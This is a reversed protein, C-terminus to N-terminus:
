ARAVHGGARDIPGRTELRARLLPQKRTSVRHRGDMRVFVDRVTYAVSGIAPRHRVGDGSHIGLWTSKPGSEGHLQRNGVDDLVHTGRRHLLRSAMDMSLLIGGPLHGM